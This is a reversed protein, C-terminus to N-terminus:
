WKGECSILRQKTDLYDTYLAKFDAKLMTVCGHNGQADKQCVSLPLDHEPKDGLLVGDFSAPEPYYWKYPFSVGACGVILLGLLFGFCFKIGSRDVTLIKKM